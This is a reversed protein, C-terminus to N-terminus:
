LCLCWGCCLHHRLCRPWAAAFVSAGVMPCWACACVAWLSPCWRALFVAPPWPGDVSVLESCQQHGARVQSPGALILTAM